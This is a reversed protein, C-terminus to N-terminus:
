AVKVDIVVDVGDRVKLAGMLGRYPKIGYDSQTVPLTGTIRGEHEALEYTQQRSASGIALEGTIAIRDGVTVSTSRFSVPKRELVKGDINKKIEARDKDSLPKVGRLGERVELSGSDANLEVTTAGDDGVTVTASWSMVELILDHGIAQAVGERYTKVQLSGAGPGLEHTGAPLAM